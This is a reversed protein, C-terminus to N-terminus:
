NMPDIEPHLSLYLNRLELGMLLAITDVSISTGEFMPHTYIYDKIPKFDENVSVDYCIRIALMEADLATKVKIKDMESTLMRLLADKKELFFSEAGSEKYLRRGKPNLQRPSNMQTFENYDAGGNKILFRELTDIRRLIKEINQEYKQQKGEINVVGKELEDHKRDHRYEWKTFKRSMEWGAFAVIIIVAVTPWNSLLYEIIADMRVVVNTHM